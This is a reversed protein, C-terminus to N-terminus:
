KVLGGIWELCEAYNGRPGKYGTNNPRAICFGFDRNFLRKPTDDVLIGQVLHKATVSMVRKKSVGLIDRCWAYRQSVWEGTARDRADSSWPATCIFVNDKGYTEELTKFFQIGESIPKMRYCFEHKLVADDIVPPLYPCGISDWVEEKVCDELTAFTNFKTAALDLCAQTFNSLVDDCDVLIPIM